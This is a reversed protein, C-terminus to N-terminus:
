CVCVRPYTVVMLCAAVPNLHEDLTGAHMWRLLGGVLLGVLRNGDSASSHLLIIGAQCHSHTHQWLVPSRQMAHLFVFGACALCLYTCIYM